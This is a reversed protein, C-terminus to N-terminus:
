EYLVFDMGRLICHALHHLRSYADAALSEFARQDGQQAMVVLGPDLDGDESV